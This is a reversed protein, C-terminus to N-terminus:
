TRNIIFSKLVGDQSLLRQRAKSAQDCRQEGRGTLIRRWRHRVGCAARKGGPRPVSAHLQPRDALAQYRGRQRQDRVRVALRARM